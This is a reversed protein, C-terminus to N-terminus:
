YEAVWLALDVLAPPLEAVVREIEVAEVGPPAEVGVEVVVGRQAARGFRVAVVAGKRVGDPVRYTFPRALSRTRVLPYVSALPVGDLTSPPSPAARFRNVARPTDGVTTSTGHVTTQM